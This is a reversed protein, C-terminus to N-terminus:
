LIRPSIWHKSSWIRAVKFVHKRRRSSPRRSIRSLTRRTRREPLIRATTGGTGAGIELIRQSPNHHGLAQFLPSRDVLDMYDYMELLTGDGMLLEVPDVEGRCLPIIDDVFKIMAAACAAASTALSRKTVDEWSSVSSNEM